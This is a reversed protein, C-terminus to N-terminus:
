GNEEPKAFGACTLRGAIKARTATLADITFVGGAGSKAFTWRGAGDLTGHQGVKTTNVRYTKGDVMLSLTLSDGGQHLRWMTLNVSRNGTSQRVAWMTAPAEYITAEDTFNCEGTGKLVIPRGDVELAVEVSTNGELTRASVMGAGLLLALGLTPMLRSMVCGEEQSLPRGAFITVVFSFKRSTRDPPLESTLKAGLLREIWGRERPGNAAHERSLEDL